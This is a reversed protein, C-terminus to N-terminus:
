AEGTPRATGDPVLTEHDGVAGEIRAVLARRDVKGNPSQPLREVPLVENPM